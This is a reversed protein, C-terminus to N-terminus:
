ISNYQSMNFQIEDYEIINFQIVRISEDEYQITNCSSFSMGLQSRLPKMLGLGTMTAEGREVQKLDEGSSPGMM